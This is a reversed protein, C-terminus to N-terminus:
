VNDLGIGHDRLKAKLAALEAETSIARQQEADARQRELEATTLLWKGDAGYWRLWVREM